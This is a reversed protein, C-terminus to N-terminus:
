ELVAHISWQENVLDLDRSEDQGHWTCGLAPYTHIESGWRRAASNSAGVSFPPGGRPDANGGADLRLRGAAFGREGQGRRAAVSMSEAHPTRPVLALESEETPRM